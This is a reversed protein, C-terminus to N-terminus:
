VMQQRLLLRLAKAHSIKVANKKFEEDYQTRVKSM